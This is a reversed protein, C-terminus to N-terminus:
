QAPPEIFKIEPGTFLSPDLPPNIQCDSLDVEVPGVVVEGSQSKSFSYRIKKVLRYGEVEQYELEVKSSRDASGFNDTVTDIRTLCRKGKWEGYVPRSTSISTRSYYKRERVQYKRQAVTLEYKQLEEEPKPNVGILLLGQKVKGLSLTFQEFQEKETSPVILIDTGLFVKAVAARLKPLEKPLGEIVFRPGHSQEWYFRTEVQLRDLVERYEPKGKKLADFMEKIYPSQARCSLSKMGAEQPYYIRGDVRRIVERPDKPACGWFWAVALILMMKKM